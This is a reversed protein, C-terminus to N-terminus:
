EGNVESKSDTDDETNETKDQPVDPSVDGKAELLTKIYKKIQAPKNLEEPVVIDHESLAWDILEKGKSKPNDLISVAEEEVEKFLSIRWQGHILPGTYIGVQSEDVIYGEKAAEIVEKILHVFGSNGPRNRIHIIKKNDNNDTM